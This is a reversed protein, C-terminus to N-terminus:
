SPFFLSLFVPKLDLGLRLGNIKTKHM